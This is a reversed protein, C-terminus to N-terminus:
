KSFQIGSYMLSAAMYWPVRASHPKFGTLHVVVPSSEVCHTQQKRRGLIVDTRNHVSICFTTTGIVICQALVRRPVAKKGICGVYQISTDGRRKAQM